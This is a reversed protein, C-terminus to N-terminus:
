GYPVEKNKSNNQFDTCQLKHEEFECKLSKYDNSLRKYRDECERHKRFITDREGKFRDMEIRMEDRFKANAELLGIVGYSEKAMKDKEVDRKFKLIALYAVLCSGILVSMVNLFPIYENQM